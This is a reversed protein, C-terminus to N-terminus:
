GLMMGIKSAPSSAPPSNMAMRKTSPGSELLIQSLAARPREILGGVQESADGPREVCSMNSRPLSTDVISACM